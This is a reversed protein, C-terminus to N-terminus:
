KRGKILEIAGPQQVVVCADQGQGTFGAGLLLVQGMDFFFQTLVDALFEVFGHGLTEERAQSIYMDVEHLSVVINGQGFFDAAILAQDGVEGGGRRHVARDAFVQGLDAQRFIGAHHQFFGDTRVQLRRALDVVGHRLKERFVAGVADVVIQAFLRHLVQDGQTKGVAQEFGLPVLVVNGM